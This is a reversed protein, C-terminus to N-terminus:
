KLIMKSYLVCKKILIIKMHSDYCGYRGGKKHRYFDLFIVDTPQIDIKSFEKEVHKKRDLREKLNICYVPYNM